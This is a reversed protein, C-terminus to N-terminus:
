YHDRIVLKLPPRKPENDKEEVMYDIYRGNWFTSEHLIYKKDTKSDKVSKAYNKVCEIVREEGYEKLIKPLKKDRVSKSKVGPYLLLLEKVFEEYQINKENEVNEVNEVNKNTNNQQEKTTRKNNSQQEKEIEEGQYLAWNVVSVVTMKSNSELEVMQLKELAKLHKYWTSPNVNLESSGKNRGTVFQGEKLEIEDLGVLHKYGKHSAKLLCWM